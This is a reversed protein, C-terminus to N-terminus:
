LFAKTHSCDVHVHVLRGPLFARAFSGWCGLIRPLLVFSDWVGATAVDLLRPDAWIATRDASKNREERQDRQIQRPSLNKILKEEGSSSPAPLDTIHWKDTVRADVRPTRWSWLLLENGALSITNDKEIM